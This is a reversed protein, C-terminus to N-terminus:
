PANWAEGLLLRLNGEHRAAVKRMIRATLESGLWVRGLVLVGVNLDVVEFTADGEIDVVAHEVGAEVQGVLLPVVEGLKDSLLSCLAM